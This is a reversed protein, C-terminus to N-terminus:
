EMAEPGSLYRALEGIEAETLKQAVENMVDGPSNRRDGVKWAHLQNVLYSETQGAIAPVPSSAGDGFGRGNEGHCSACAALSRASDGNVFLTRGPASFNHGEGRWHPSASFYAAIDGIDRKSIAAAMATMIETKRAGSQFDALQKRIYAQGQGALKPYHEATGLGAEGHCEQCQEVKSRIKGREFDGSPEAAHAPLLQVSLTFLLLRLPGFKRRTV